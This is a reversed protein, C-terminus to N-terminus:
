TRTFPDYTYTKSMWPLLLPLLKLLPTIFPSIPRRNSPLVSYFFKKENITQLSYFLQKITPLFSYTMYLRFSLFFTNDKKYPCPLNLTPSVTLTLLSSTLLTFLPTLSLSSRIFTVIHKYLMLEKM